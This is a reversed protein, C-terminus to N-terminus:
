RKKTFNARATLAYDTKPTCTLRTGTCAGGWRAFKWGKAPIAHLTLQTGASFRTSCRPSCVVRGKGSTSVKVPIVSPGFVATVAAPKSLDLVCDAKGVCSGTWHIFRSTSKPTPQLTVSTGQDWQTTCAATCAVGPLDSSVLGPGSISLGLAEEPTNLHHLFITDQIDNQTGSHGYYDDHNFDLVQQQLPRGDAFPYLIDSPSDCPHGVDLEGAPDTAPTCANPAGAPLAGFAHLLEHAQIGDSPVDPCGNLWVVALGDGRDFDGGGTGCVDALPPPGDYYVVYDKFANGFGATGLANALDRFSTDGTYASAPQPLHVFSIDLCIGNPFTAQDFRPVRTPDQGTWWANMSDVDDQLRNAVAGFQDPSDAPTAVIAHVQAGTVIDTRDVAVEGTGCWGAALAGPALWLAAATVVIFLAKRM